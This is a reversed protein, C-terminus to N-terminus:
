GLGAVCSAGVGRGMFGPISRSGVEGEVCTVITILVAVSLLAM